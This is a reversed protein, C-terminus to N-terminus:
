RGTIGDFSSNFTRVKQQQDFEYGIEFSSRPGNESWLRTLKRRDVHELIGNKHHQSIELLPNLWENGLTEVLTLLYLVEEDSFKLLRLQTNELM